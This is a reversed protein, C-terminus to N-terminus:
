DVVRVEPHTELALFRGVDAAEAEVGARTDEDLSEFPTVAVVPTARTRDLRWTGVVTGDVVVTPRIVGGGPWVQARHPEPIPRNEPTYGLLYHDYAPLLTVGVPEDGAEAVADRAAEFGLMTTGDVALEVVDDAVALADWAPRSDTKTLGSWAVFDELTAPGHADLYRRALRTVAAERAAADLREASAPAVSPLWADVRDYANKGGIPEVECVVGRLAARRVLFFPGQGSLDVGRDALRDTLEALTLPGSSEVVDGLTEVAREVADPDLGMEVLRAPESGRTAFHPGLLSRLWPYDDVSLLHLTGRMAWTRVLSRDEYLAREVDVATAGACRARVGLLAATRDQAQLGCVAEVTPVVDGDGGLRQAHRRQRRIAADTLPTTM